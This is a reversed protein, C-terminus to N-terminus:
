KTRSDCHFVSRRSIAALVQLRALVISSYRGTFLLAILVDVVLTKQCLLDLGRFHKILAVFTRSASM